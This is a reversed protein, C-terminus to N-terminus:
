WTLPNWLKFPKRLIPQAKESLDKQNVTQYTVDHINQNLATHQIEDYKIFSIGPTKLQTEMIEKRGLQESMTYFPKTYSGGTRFGQEEYKIYYTQGAEVDFDLIKPKQFHLVTLPHSSSLRYSGAPLEVWYYHNNLLSPIREGNLFFNPALIEQRNWRSDPRYLYILAAEPHRVNVAQFPQGPKQNVWGGVSFKGLRYQETLGPEKKLDVSPLISKNDVVSTSACGVLTTSCILVMLYRM